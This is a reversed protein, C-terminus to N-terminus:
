EKIKSFMAVGLLQSIERTLLMKGEECLQTFELFHASKLHERRAQENAYIEFFLWETGREFAFFALVGTEVRMSQAMQALVINKFEARKQPAVALRTFSFVGDRLLEDLLPKVAIFKPEAEIKAKDALLPSSGALFREFHESNRHTAYATEDAYIEIVYTREPEDKQAFFLMALTGEEAQSAAINAEGLAYFEQKSQPTAVLEFLNIKMDDAALNLGIGLALFVIFKKM